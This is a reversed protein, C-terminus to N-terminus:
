KVAAASDSKVGLSDNHEFMKVLDEPSKGLNALSFNVDSALKHNPYKQLFEEYIRKANQMDNLQTEYIFGQLFFAVPQKPYSNIESCKKYFDIAERYEGIGNSIDGARFLYEAAMSDESFKAAYEKYMSIMEQAKKRNVTQSSDNLMDKETQSIKETLKKNESKCSALAATIVVIWLIKKM